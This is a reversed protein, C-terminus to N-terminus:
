LRGNASAFPRRLIVASNIARVLDVHFDRADLAERNVRTPALIEHELPDLGVGAHDSPALGVALVVAVTGDGRLDLLQAAIQDAAVREVDTMDQLDREVIVRLAAARELKIAGGRPDLLRQPVDGSFHRLLRDVIKEAAGATRAHADVGVAPAVLH